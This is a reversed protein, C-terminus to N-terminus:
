RPSGDGLGRSAAASIVLASAEPLQLIEALQREQEPRLTGYGRIFKSLTSETVGLDRAIEYQPRGSRVIALKIELRMACGGPKLKFFFFTQCVTIPVFASM